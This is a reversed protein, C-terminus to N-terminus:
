VLRLDSAVRAKITVTSALIAGGADLIRGVYDPIHTVDQWAIYKHNGSKGLRLGKRTAKLNHLTLTVVPEIVRQRTPTEVYVNSKLNRVTKAQRTVGSYHPLATAFSTAQFIMMGM